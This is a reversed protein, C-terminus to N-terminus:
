FYLIKKKMNWMCRWKNKNFFLVQQMKIWTLRLKLGFSKGKLYQFPTVLISPWIGKSGRFSWTYMLLTSPWTITGCSTNWFDISSGFLESCANSDFATGVTVALTEVLDLRFMRHHPHPQFVIQSSFKRRVFVELFTVWGTTM